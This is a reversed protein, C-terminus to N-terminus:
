GSGRCRVGLGRGGECGDEDRSVGIWSCSSLFGSTLTVGPCSDVLGVSVMGGGDVGVVLSGLWGRVFISVVGVASKDRVDGRDPSSDGREVVEVAALSDM